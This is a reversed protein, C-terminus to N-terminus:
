KMLNTEKKIWDWKFGVILIIAWLVLFVSKFQAELWFFFSRLLSLVNFEFKPSLNIFDFVTDLGWFFSGFILILAGTCLLAILGSFIVVAVGKIFKLFQNM